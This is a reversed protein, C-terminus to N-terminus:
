KAEPEDLFKEIEGILDSAGLDDIVEAARIAEALDGETRAQDDITVREFAARTEISELDLKLDCVRNVHPLLAEVGLVSMASALYIPIQAWLGVAPIGARGGAELIAANMGTPGRYDPREGVGSGLDVARSGFHVALVPLARRHTVAAPMGAFSAIRAVGLRQAFEIVGQVVTPWELSLEPGTLLLLRGSAGASWTFQPYEVHRDDGLGVVAPRTHSFDLRDDIDLEAFPKVDTRTSIFEVLQSGTNGADVWGNLALM